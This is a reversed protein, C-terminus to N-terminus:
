TMKEKKPKPPKAVCLEDYRNKQGTSLHPLYFDEQISTGVKLKVRHPLDTLTTTIVPKEMENMFNNSACSGCYGCEGTAIPVLLHQIASLGDTDAVPCSM